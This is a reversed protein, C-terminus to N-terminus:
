CGTVGFDSQLSQAYEPTKQVSLGNAEAWATVSIPWLESIIELMAKAVVQIEQQAGKHLRLKIFKLCNSLNCTAYYSTYVSVPIVMRAQERCIGNELMLKYLKMSEECHTRLMEDARTYICSTSEPSNPSKEWSELIPNIFEDANSSQLNKAHQTRFKTPMYFEDPTEAFRSSQENYSWTRHRMHQRAVFIPVKVRFTVVTHEFTSTHGNKALFKVLKEDSEDIKTKHKGFSVRASNVITVDSGLSDVLEVFGISDDYIFKKEM